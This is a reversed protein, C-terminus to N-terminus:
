KVRTLTCPKLGAAVGTGVYAGRGVICNEGLVAQERVQALHWVSSGEGIIAEPSVDASDQIRVMRTNGEWSDHNIM